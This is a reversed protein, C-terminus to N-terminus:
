REPLYTAACGPAETVTVSVLAARGTLHPALTDAIHQAVREASPNHEAFPTLDNLHKQHLTKCVGDLLRELEHFDVVLGCDDLGPAAVVATIRWDHGHVPEIVGDPLRLAHTANFHREVHLQYMAM